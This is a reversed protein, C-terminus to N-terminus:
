LLLRTPLATDLRIPTSSGPFALAILAPVLAVGLPIRPRVGLLHPLNWRADSEPAGVVACGRM